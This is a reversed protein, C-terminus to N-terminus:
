RVFKSDNWVTNGSSDWIGEREVLRKKESSIRVKSNSAIYHVKNDDDSEPPAGLFNVRVYTLALSEGREGQQKLLITAKKKLGV